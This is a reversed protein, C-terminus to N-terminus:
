QEQEDDQHSSLLHWFERFSRQLFSMPPMAKRKQRQQKLEQLEQREKSRLEELLEPHKERVFRAFNEIPRVWWINEDRAAMIPIEETNYILCYLYDMCAEYDDILHQMKAVERVENDSLSILRLREM